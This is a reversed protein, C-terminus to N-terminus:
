EQAVEVGGVSSNVFRFSCNNVNAFNPLGSNKITTCFSNEFVEHEVDNTAVADDNNKLKLKNCFAKEFAEHKSAIHSDKIISVDNLAVTDDNPYWRYGPLSSPTFQAFVMTAADIMLADDDDNPMNVDAVVEFSSATHGAKTNSDILADDDPCWRCGPGFSRTFDVKDPVSVSTKTELVTLSYGTASYASNYAAAISKSITNLDEASTEDVLGHVMVRAEAPGSLKTGLLQNAAASLNFESNSSTSDLTTLTAVAFKM